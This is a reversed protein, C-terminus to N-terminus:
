EGVKKLKFEIMGARFATTLVAALEEESLKGSEILKALVEKTEDMETVKIKSKKEKRLLAVRL